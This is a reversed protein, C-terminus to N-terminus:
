MCKQLSRMGDDATDARGEVIDLGFVQEAAPVLKDIVKRTEETVLYEDEGGILYVSSPRADTQKGHVAAGAVKNGSM